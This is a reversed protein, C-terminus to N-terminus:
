NSFQGHLPRPTHEFRWCSQAAYLSEGTSFISMLTLNFLLVVTM